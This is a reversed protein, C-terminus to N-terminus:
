GPRSIGGGVRPLESAVGAGAIVESSMFTGPAQSRFGNEERAFEMSLRKHGSQCHISRHMKGGQLWMQRLPGNTGPRLALAADSAADAASQRALEDERDQLFRRM